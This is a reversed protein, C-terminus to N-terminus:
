SASKPLSLFSYLSGEEASSPFASATAAAPTTNTLLDTKNVPVMGDARALTAECNKRQRASEGGRSVSSPCVHYRPLASEGGQGLKALSPHSRGNLFHRSAEKAPAAPTTPELTAFGGFLNERWRVEQILLAERFDILHSERCQVLWGTEACKQFGQHACVGRRRSLLPTRRGM